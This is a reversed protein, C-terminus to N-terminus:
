EFHENFRGEEMAKLADKPTMGEVKVRMAVCTGMVERSRAYLSSGTLRDKQKEAVQKVQDMSLNETSADWDGNCKKLGLTQIIVHPTEGRASM